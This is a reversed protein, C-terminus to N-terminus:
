PTPIQTSLISPKGQLVFSGPMAGVEPPCVNIKFSTGMRGGLLPVVKKTGGHHSGIVEETDGGVGVLGTGLGCEEM